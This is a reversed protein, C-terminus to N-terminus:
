GGTAPAPAAPAPAAPAAPAPAATEPAAPAACVRTLEEYRSVIWGPADEPISADIDTQFSAFVKASRSDDILARFADRDSVISRKERATLLTM